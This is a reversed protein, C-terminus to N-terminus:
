EVIVSGDIDEYYIVEPGSIYNPDRSINILLSEGMHIEIVFEEVKVDTVAAEGERSLLILDMKTYCALGSGDTFSIGWDDVGFFISSITKENLKQRM